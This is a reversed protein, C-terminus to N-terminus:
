AFLDAQRSADAMQAARARHCEDQYVALDYADRAANVGALAADFAESAANLHAATKRNRRKLYCYSAIRHAKAAADFIDQADTYAILAAPTNM